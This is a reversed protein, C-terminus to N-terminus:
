YSTDTPSPPCFGVTNPSLQDHFRPAAVAGLVSRDRDLALWLTQITAIIIRSGGSGGTIFYLTNNAFFEIITPAMASLPRKGPKVFNNPSPIPGFANLSNPVSFNDM